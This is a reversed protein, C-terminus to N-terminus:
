PATVPGTLDYTEITEIFRGAGLEQRWARPEQRPSIWHLRYEERLGLEKRVETAARKCTAWAQATSVGAVPAAYLHVMPDLNLRDVHWPESRKRVRAIQSIAFLKGDVGRVKVSALKEFAGNGPVDIELKVPLSAGFQRFRGVEIGGYAQLTASLEHLDVGARAADERDVNIFPSPSEATDLSIDILDKHKRLREVLAHACKRLLDAEPGVIAMDMTEDAGGQPSLHRIRIAFDKVSNLRRRIDAMVGNRERAAAGEFRLLICPGDRFATFPNESLTLTSKVGPTHRLDAEVTSLLQANRELSAGPPFTTEISWYDAGAGKEGGRQDCSFFEDLSVGKPLQLQITTLQRRLETEGAPALPGVASRVVVAVAPRGDLLIFRTAEGGVLQVRAVDRLRIVSGGPTTKLVIQRLGEIDGDVGKPQDDLELKLRNKVDLITLAPASLKELDVCVHVVPQPNVVLEVSGVSPVQQLQKLVRSSALNGLYQAERRADSSRLALIRAPPADFSVTIGAQATEQPLVPMALSVRNQVLVKAMDPDTGKAFEIRLRYRGGNESRSRLWRANEVGNVQQEIPAAITDAVTQAVAGPYVAEVTVVPAM